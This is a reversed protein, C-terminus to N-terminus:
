WAPSLRLRRRSGANIIALGSGDFVMALSAEVDVIMDALKRRMLPHDILTKGFAARSRRLM